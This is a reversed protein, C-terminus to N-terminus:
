VPFKPKMAQLKTWENKVEEKNAHDPLLSWPLMNYHTNMCVKLSFYHVRQIIEFNSPVREVLERCIRIPFNRCKVKLNHLETQVTKVNKKKMEQLCEEFQFGYDVDNVSLMSNGFENTSKQVANKVCQLEAAGRAIPDLTEDQVTLYSPKFIRRATTMVLLHLDTYAHVININNSQFVLNVKNVGDLVSNIFLLYLYNINEEYM